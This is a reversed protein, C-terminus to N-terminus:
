KKDRLSKPYMLKLASWDDDLACSSVTEIGNKEALARISDRSLDTANGKRWSVWLMGSKKLSQKLKSLQKVFEKESEFFCHIFDFEGTLRSELKTGTPVKELQKRLNEPVNLMLARFGPKLGLKEVIPCSSYEVM